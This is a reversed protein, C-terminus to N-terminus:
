QHIKNYQTTARQEAAWLVVEKALGIQKGTLYATRGDRCTGIITELLDTLADFLTELYDYKANDMKIEGSEMESMINRTRNCMFEIDHAHKQASFPYLKM